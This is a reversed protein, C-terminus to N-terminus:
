EIRSIKYNLSYYLCGATIVLVIFSQFLNETYGYSSSLAIQRIFIFVISSVITVPVSKNLMGVAFTLLGICVCIITSMLMRLLWNLLYSNEFSGALLDFFYDAGIVYGCCVAYGALLSLVIFISIVVLKAGILKKRDVPYSFMILITRANYEKIIVTSVLVGYFVIYIFSLLVEIMRFTNEFTDKSQRPDTASDILSVTIFLVSCLIAIISFLIYKGIKSKQIELKMLHMMM